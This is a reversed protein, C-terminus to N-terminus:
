IMKSQDNIKNQLIDVYAIAENAPDTHDMAQDKYVMLENIQALLNTVM